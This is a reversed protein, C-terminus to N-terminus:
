TCPANQPGNPSESSQPAPPQPESREDPAPSPAPPTDGQDLARSQRIEHGEAWLEATQLVVQFQAPSLKVLHPDLRTHMEELRAADEEPLTARFKAGTTPRDALGALVSLDDFDLGLVDALTRLRQGSPRKIQGDEIKHYWSQTAHMLEAVKEQTYGLENRRERIRDGLATGM